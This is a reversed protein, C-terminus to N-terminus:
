PRHLALQETLDSILTSFVAPHEEPPLQALSAEIADIGETDQQDVREGM